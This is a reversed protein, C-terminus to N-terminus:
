AIYPLVRVMAATPIMRAIASAIKAPTTTPIGRGPDIPVNKFTMKEDLTATASVEYRECLYWCGLVPHICKRLRHGVVRGDSQM